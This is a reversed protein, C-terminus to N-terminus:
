RIPDAGSDTPEDVFELPDPIDEPLSPFHHRWEDSLRPVTMGLDRMVAIIRGLTTAPTRFIGNAIVVVIRWQKADMWDRRSVDTAWQGPDERHQLGDYEIILRFEPYSLDFRWRVRGDSWYIKPNIVPEPLGALVILMRLRSEMASDVEARVFSAARRALAQSRGKFSAAAEVLGQPTVLGRRVLSDGLAVLDVLDLADALDLFTTEVTTVPIGRHTTARQGARVRHARIGKVKPL